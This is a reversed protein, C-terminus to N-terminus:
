VDEMEEDDEVLEGAITVPHADEGDDNVMYQAMVSALSETPAEVERGATGLTQDLVYQAAKLKVAAPVVPKGDFDLDDNAMLDAIQDLAVRGLSYMKGRCLYKLRRQVEIHTLLVDAWVPRKGFNGSPGRPYGRQLEEWDWEEIKRGALIEAKALVEEPTVARRLSSRLGKRAVADLGRAVTACRRIVMIDFAPPAGSTTIRAVVGIM